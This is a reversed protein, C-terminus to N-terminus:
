NIDLLTAVLEGVEFQEGKKAGLVVLKHGSMIGENLSLVNIRLLNNDVCQVYLGSSDAHIITGPQVGPVGKADVPSVEFIRVPQKRYTTIAGGYVPNSANVLNEIQAATQSDWNITLHNVDPRTHYSTANIHKLTQITAPLQNLQEIFQVIMNIATACFRADAIGWTEGPIFTLSQQMVVDGTDFGVDVKHISVGGSTEGNKIQWFLPDPGRYAPLMSFHLNYFGLSPFEYLSAPIHYSFGFMVVVDPQIEAFLQGVNILLNQRSVKIFTISKTECFNSVGLNRGTLKDTSVVAKLFGQTNFYDIVPVSSLHNSFIIIKM